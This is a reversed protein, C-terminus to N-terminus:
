FVASCFFTLALLRASEAPIMLGDHRSAEAELKTELLFAVSGCVTQNLLSVWITGVSGSPKEGFQCGRSPEGGSMGVYKRMKYVFVIDQRQHLLLPIIFADDGPETPHFTPIIPSLFQFINGGGNVIQGIPCRPRRHSHHSTVAPVQKELRVDFCSGFSVWHPQLLRWSM